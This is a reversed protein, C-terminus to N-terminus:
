AVYIEVDKAEHRVGLLRQKSPNPFISRIEPGPSTASFLLGKTNKLSSFKNLICGLMPSSSIGVCITINPATKRGFKRNIFHLNPRNSDSPSQFLEVSRVHVAGGCACPSTLKNIDYSFAAEEPLENANSYTLDGAINETEGLRTGMESCITM